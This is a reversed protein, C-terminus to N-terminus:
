RPKPIVRVPVAPNDGAVISVPIGLSEYARLYDSNLYANEELEEWAFLKYDGPPIGRLIAQGDEGATAVRYQERRGRRATDPVLVRSPTGM